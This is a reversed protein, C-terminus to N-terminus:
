FDEQCTGHSMRRSIHWSHWSENVDRCSQNAHIHIHLCALRFAAGHQLLAHHVCRHRQPNASEGPYTATHQLTNCHTATHQLVKYHALRTTCHTSCHMIPRIYTKPPHRAWWSLYTNCHAATHQLTNCHTTTHQGCTATHVATCSLRIQRKPPSALEVPCTCFHTM